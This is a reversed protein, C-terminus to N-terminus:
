VHSRTGHGRAGVHDGAHPNEIVLELAITSQILVLSTPDKPAESLAVSHVVILGKARDDLRGNNPGDEEKGERPVPRDVLQVDLIDGKMDSRDLCHLANLRDAEDVGSAHTHHTLKVARQIAELLHQPDPVIAEGGVQDGEAEDLGARVRQQEDKSAAVVNDVEVDVIDHERHGTGDKELARDCDQQALESHLFQAREVVKEPDGHLTAWL